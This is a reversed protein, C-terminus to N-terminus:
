AGLDDVLPMGERKQVVLLNVVDGLQVGFVIADAVADYGYVGLKLADEKDAVPIGGAIGKHLLKDAVKRRGDKGGAGHLLLAQEAHGAVGVDGHVLAHHVM